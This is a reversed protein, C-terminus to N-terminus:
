VVAACVRRVVRGQNVCSFPFRGHCPTSEDGGREVDRPAAPARGVNHSDILTNLVDSGLSFPLIFFSTILWAKWFFYFSTHPTSYPLLGCM